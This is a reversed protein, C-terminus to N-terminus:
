NNYGIINIMRGTPLQELHTSRRHSFFLDENSYTDINIEEINLIKNEILQFKILNKLNFFIKNTLYDINFYDKYNPNIKVFNEKFDLSVEFNNVHLCPGIIAKIKDYQPQIKLIQDVANHIIDHYAGKWGVHLCSIFKNEDDFVFIPCCDATLVAISINKDQTIIGDAKFKDLYNNENILVVKNSHIQNLIVLKKKSFNLNNQAININNKVCIIEDGSSYSCNLSSYNNTSYGNKKTFFGFSINNNIFKKSTFYNNKM